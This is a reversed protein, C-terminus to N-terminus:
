NLPDTTSYTAVIGFAAWRSPEAGDAKRDYEDPARAELFLCLGGLTRDAAVAAGIAGMMADIAAAPDAAGLPAGVEIPFDHEYTYTLPSLDIEPDGPEGPHGIVDGGADAQRAKSADGDFGRIRAYPAAAMVLAKLALTVDRRRSM